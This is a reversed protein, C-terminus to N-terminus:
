ISPSTVRQFHIHGLILDTVHDLYANEDEHSIEHCGINKTSTIKLYETM